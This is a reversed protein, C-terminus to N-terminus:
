LLLLPQVPVLPAGASKKSNCSQCAPVVNQLTHSGGKSLPTIHDQTLRQMKRGCYVCRHGYAEKIAQWQEATLDSIPAGRKLARHKRAYEQFRPKMLHYRQRLTSLIMDKNISRYARAHALCKERHTLYYKRARAQRKEKSSRAYNARSRARFKEVNAHYYARQYIRRDEDTKPM